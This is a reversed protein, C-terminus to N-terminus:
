PELRADQPDDDLSEGGENTKDFTKCDVILVRYAPMASGLHTGKGLRMSGRKGGLKNILDSTFAGYNIQHTACWAKLFRPVLYAKKTDTEFRAVLRGKPLADPIVISDLGNGSGSRLDDTSKIVLINNYNETLYDNLTQEVSSGMDNVSQLNLKLLNVTWKFLGKMDYDILELKNAIYAGALTTAAGASWFRNESTLGAAEDIKRQFGLVLKKVDELNQMVWQIYIIGAHGYNEEISRDFKDTGEKEKTTSFVRQARWEMIRQAEAKPAQKDASIREIVSANGTTVCSLHWPEGRTRELNAGGAMRGRQEGSSIQYALDSLQKGEENTLEDIYFPLNHLVESRNFKIADTDKATIMMGKTAGWVSGAVRIAATKGCGSLPSHIHLACAKQPLFAMLPSGFATCVVYQHMVLEPRTNYFNAMKKWEELSGKPKLYPILAATPTSPPNPDIRDARIEKDGLVFADMNEDVWGFQRRATAATSTAQLENVWTIMYQMLDNIQPIAVGQVAMKKRFEERSTIATLPVVFERVGDQPMHIKCVVCEGEESDVLRQTVYVDHHYIVHEDVEGDPSTNRVYVGGNQGRFYPRPYVPIVHQTSLEQSASGPLLTGELLDGSEGSEGSEVVYTGDENAEAEAVKRGLVIPSSIKGWHPCETCIGGENEDFTTCRYPGKILDLKKLTLEPTYEPHQNSIKHAAKEGDECFKAISLGARWMPESTEAQGKIIRRLQECGNGNQAKLLITRFEHKYNQIIADRLSAPGEAPAYKKPVPITDMGLKSAFFDFNVTDPTKGIVEVPAPTDPKHNHTGVVRLVRAVDSPVAPDIELGFEKCKAKFQDAVVKWQEVPVSEELVWYVHIGRGSNVILPKPLELAVIFEQLRRLAEGQTAFGEGKAVKDEGCDLDLFFSKIHKADEGRRTGEEKFNSMAFYIDWGESDYHEATEALEEVTHFYVQKIGYRYTGLAANHRFLVYVGETPLVWRLFERTNM